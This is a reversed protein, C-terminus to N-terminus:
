NISYGLVWNYIVKVQEAVITNLNNVQTELASILNELEFIRDDLEDNKEKLLINEERLMQNEKELDYKEDTKDVNTIPTIEPVEIIPTTTIGKLQTGFIEVLEVDSVLNFKITRLKSNTIIEDYYILEGDGIITFEIDQEMKTSDFFEREFTIEVTAPIETVEVDLIVEIDNFDLEFDNIEVGTTSYDFPTSIKAESFGVLTGGLLIIALISLSKHIM